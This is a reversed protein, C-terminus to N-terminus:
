SQRTVFSCSPLHCCQVWPGRPIVLRPVRQYQTLFLSLYMHACRHLARVSARTHAPVHLGASLWTREEREGHPQAHLAPRPTGSASATGDENPLHCGWTHKNLFTISGCQPQRAPLLCLLSSRARLVPKSSRMWLNLSVRSSLWFRTGELHGRPARGLRDRLTAERVLASM